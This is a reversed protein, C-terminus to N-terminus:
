ISFFRFNSSKSFLKNLFSLLVISRILPNSFPMPKFNSSKDVFSSSNIFPCYKSKALFAILADTGSKPLLKKSYM